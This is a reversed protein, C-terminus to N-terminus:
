SPRAAVREAFAALHELGLAHAIQDLRARRAERPLELASRVECLHASPEPHWAVVDRGQRAGRMSFYHGVARFVFYYAIVNPGPVFFLGPGLIAALLGDIFVWRRHKAYDARCMERAADIARAGDLDAAHVLRAATEHRLRWLLRQEAVAEAIKGILKRWIGTKESPEGRERRRREEEAEALTQKFRDIQRRLWGSRAAEAETEHLEAPTECYLESRGSGLPVLFVDM